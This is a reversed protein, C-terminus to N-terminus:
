FAVKEEEKGSFSFIEREGKGKGQWYERLELCIVKSGQHLRASGLCGMMDILQQFVAFLLIFDLLM